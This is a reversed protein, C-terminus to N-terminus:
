ILPLQIQFIQKLIFSTGARFLLLRPKTIWLSNTDSQVAIPNEDIELHNFRDWSNVLSKFVLNLLGVRWHEQEDGKPATGTSAQKQNEGSNIPGKGSSLKSPPPFHRPTKPVAAFLITPPSTPFLTRHTSLAPYLMLLRYSKGMYLCPAWFSQLTNAAM